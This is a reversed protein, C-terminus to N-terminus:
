RKKPAPAMPPLGKAARKRNIQDRLVGPDHGGRRNGAECWVAWFEAVTMGDLLTAATWHHARAFDRLIEDWPM